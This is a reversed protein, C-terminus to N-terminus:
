NIIWAKIDHTQRESEPPIQMYDKYLNTLYKEWNRFAPFEQGCFEKLEMTEYDSKLIVENAGYLGWSVVGVHDSKEYPYRQALKDIKKCYYESSVLRTIPMIMVKIIKKTLTKSSVKKSMSLMLLMRYFSLKRYHNNLLKSNKPLGDVPLIDIWLNDSGDDGMSVKEIKTNVDIVKLFPYKLNGDEYSIVSLHAAVPDSKVLELFRNYDPRPMSIDIDDDWPIFGKHRVAGLMTGGCLRFTLHHKECYKSFVCLIQFIQLQIEKSNLKKM